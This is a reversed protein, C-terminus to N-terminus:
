NSNSSSNLRTALIGAPLVRRGRPPSDPVSTNDETWTSYVSRVRHEQKPDQYTLHIMPGIRSQDIGSYFSAYHIMVSDPHVEEIEVDNPLHANLPPGSLVPSTSIPARHIGNHYCKEWTALTSSLETNHHHEHISWVQPQQGITASHIASNIGDLMKRISDFDTFKMRLLHIVLVIYLVHESSSLVSHSDRIFM